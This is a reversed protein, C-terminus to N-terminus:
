VRNDDLLQDLGSMLEDHLDDPADDLGDAVTHLSWAAQSITGRRSHHAKTQRAQYASVPRARAVRGFGRRGIAM